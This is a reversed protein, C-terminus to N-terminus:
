GSNETIGFLFAHAHHCHLREFAGFVRRERVEGWGLALGEGLSREFPDETVLVDATQHDRDVRECLDVFVQM